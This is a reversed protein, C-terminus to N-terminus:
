ARHAAHAMPGRRVRQLLKNALERWREGTMGWDFGEYYLQGPHPAATFDYEPALRFAESRIAFAALANRQTTFCEFMQQKLRCEDESLEFRIEPMEQLPLFHGTEIGGVGAHYSTFEWRATRPVQELTCARDVALACADHDPHGGEYPHTLIIGPRLCAILDRLRDAIEGMSMSAEQDAIGFRECQSGAIGALSLATLLENRRAERYEERTAFGANRADFLNRPSGDTVHVITLRERWVAMRAGAGIVEDDPHAAVILVPDELM